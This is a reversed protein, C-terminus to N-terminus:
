RTVPRHPIRTRHAARRDDRDDRGTSLDDHRVWSVLATLAAGTMTLLLATLLLSALTM